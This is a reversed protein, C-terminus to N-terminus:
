GQLSCKRDRQWLELLKGLDVKRQLTLSRREGEVRYRGKFSGSQCVPTKLPWERRVDGM